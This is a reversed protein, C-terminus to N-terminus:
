YISAADQLERIATSVKSCSAEPYGKSAEKMPWVLIVDSNPIRSHSWEYLPFGMTFGCLTM